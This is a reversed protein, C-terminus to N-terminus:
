ISFGETLLLFVLMMLFQQFTTKMSLRHAFYNLIESKINLKENSKELYSRLTSMKM